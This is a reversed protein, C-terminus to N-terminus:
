KVWRILICVSLIQTEITRARLSCFLKRHEKCYSELIVKLKARTSACCGAISGTAGDALTTSRSSHVGGDESAELLSFRRSAPTSMNSQSKM